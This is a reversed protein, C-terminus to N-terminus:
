TDQSATRRKRTVPRKVKLPLMKERLRSILTSKATEMDGRRLMDLLDASLAEQWARGPVRSGGKEIEQRAELLLAALAPYDSSLSRELEQQVMRALAPSDGAAAIAIVLNARRIVSPVIFSGKDPSEPLYALINKERAEDAIQRNVAEDGAAAVALFAGELDGPLYGRRVVRLLGKDALQSVGQGPQPSIVTVWAGCELLRHVETEAADGGGFVVCRKGEINFFLPYYTSEKM